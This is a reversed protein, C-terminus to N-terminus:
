PAPSGAVHLGIPLSTIGAGTVTLLYTGTSVGPPLTFNVTEPTSGGGVGVSSWNTTRAYYVTCVGSDPNCTQGPGAVTTLRIIPYNEDSQVDDGYASGASPGNLQKGTLKYSGGGNSVVKSIVPRVSLSPGGNPTYVFLQNSATNYLLQGTPLMLMRYVYSGVNVYGTPSSIPTMTSAVPDFDFVQVPPNFLGGFVLGIAANTKLAATTVVQGSSNFRGLAIQTASDVSYIFAGSPITDHQGNAQNVSWFLQLCGTATVTVAPSAQTTAANEAVPNPGADAAIIVHGNPLEAAPTDDSGFNANPITGYQNSLTRLMDPGAAWSNTSATYLAIHQNAGVVLIRGDQLRLVPGLEYGLASSSLIPLNGGATGDAPSISSWTNTAPNYLEAYGQGTNNPSFIGTSQFLDYTLVRNDDLIAWGEEDSPDFYVKTGAPSWSDTAISYLYPQNNLISGALITGGPCDLPPTMGSVPPRQGMSGFLPLAQNRLM